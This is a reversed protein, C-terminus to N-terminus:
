VERVDDLHHTRSNLARSEGSSRTERKARSKLISLRTEDRNRRPERRRRRRARQCARKIAFTRTVRATHRKSGRVTM